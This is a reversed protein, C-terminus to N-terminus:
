YLMIELVMASIRFDPSFETDTDTMINLLSKQACNLGETENEFDVPFDEM